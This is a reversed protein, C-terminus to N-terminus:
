SLHDVEVLHFQPQDFSSIRNRLSNLRIPMVMTVTYREHVLAESQWTPSGHTGTFYSISHSSNPFTRQFEQVYRISATGSEISRSYSFPHLCLIVVSVGLLPSLITLPNLLRRKM